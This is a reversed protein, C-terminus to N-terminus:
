ANKLYDSYREKGNNVMAIRNCLGSPLTDVSFTPHTGQRTKLLTTDDRGILGLANHKFKM